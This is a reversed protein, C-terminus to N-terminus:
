YLAHLRHSNPCYKSETYTVTKVEDSTSYGVSTSTFGKTVPKTITTVGTVKTHDKETYTRPVDTKITTPVWTTIPKYSSITTVGTSHSTKVSTWCSTSKTPTTASKETSSSSTTDGYKPPTGPAAYAMSTLSLLAVAAIKMTSFM